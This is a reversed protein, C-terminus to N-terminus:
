YSSNTNLLKVGKRSALALNVVHSSICGVTKQQSIFLVLALAANVTELAVKAALSTNFVCLLSVLKILLSM